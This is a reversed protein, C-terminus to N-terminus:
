ASISQKTELDKIRNALHLNGPDLESAKRAAILAAQMNNGSGEYLASLRAQIDPSDPELEALRQLAVFELDPRERRRQAEVVMQWSWKNTPELRALENAAEAAGDFRQLRHMVHILDSLVSRNNPTVKLVEQLLVAARDPHINYKVLYSAYREATITKNPRQQLEREFVRVDQEFNRPAKKRVAIAGGFTTVSDIQEFAYRSFGWSDKPLDLNAARARIFRSLYEYIPTDSLGQHEKFGQWQGIGDEFHFSLDEFIYIGGPLLSPFLAEFSTIMHHALHSGDDVIITPKYEAAVAHLFSPDEQSGIKIVVRDSALSLCDPNIDIGILTAKEFFWHWTRLSAGGAAGIEILNIESHKWRAFLDEYHRLYDWSWSFTSCKDTGYLAGIVDLESM